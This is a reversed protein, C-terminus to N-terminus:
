HLEESSLSTTRKRGTVDRLKVELRYPYVVNIEAEATNNLMRQDVVLISSTGRKVLSSFMGDPKISGITSDTTWNYNANPIQIPRHELAGDDGFLLKDLGFKFTCLPMIFVSGSPRVVFPETVTIEILQEKLDYGPEQLRARVTAKGLAVGKLLFIDTRTQSKSDM